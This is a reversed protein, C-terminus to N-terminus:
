RAGGFHGRQEAVARSMDEVSVPSTPVTLRGKLRRVDGTAELLRVGSEDQWFRLVSGRSLKLRKRVEAPIVVRGRSSLKASFERVTPM